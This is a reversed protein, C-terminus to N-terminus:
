KPHNSLSIRHKIPRINALGAEVMGHPDKIFEIKPSGTLVEAVLVLWYQRGLAKAQSWENDTLEFNSFRESVTSKVEVAVLTGNADILQIDWGPKGGEHAIWRLDSWQEANCRDKLHQLVLAEGADGIEKANKAYRTQSSGGSGPHTPGTPVTLLGSSEVAAVKGTPAQPEPEHDLRLLNLILALQYSGNVTFHYDSPNLSFTENYKNLVRKLFKWNHGRPKGTSEPVYQHGTDTVSVTFKARGGVTSLPNRKRALQIVHANFEDLRVKRHQVDRLPLTKSLSAHPQVLEWLEEETYAGIESFVAQFKDPLESEWGQRRSRPLHNDFNDRANKLSNHLQKEDRGGGLSKHFIRYAKEWRDTGLKRPPLTGKKSGAKRRSYKALFFAVVLFDKTRPIPKSSARRQKKSTM